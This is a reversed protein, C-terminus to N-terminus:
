LLGKWISADVGESLSVPKVCAKYGFGRIEQLMVRVEDKAAADTKNLLLLDASEMQDALMKPMIGALERYRTADIVSVVKVEDEHSIFGNLTELVKGPSALGTPEIIICEPSYDRIVGKVAASLESALSCCICGSLMGSVSYGESGLLEDDYNTEGIENEIIVIRDARDPDKRPKKLYHGAFSSVAMTKGAGLFGSFVIYKM